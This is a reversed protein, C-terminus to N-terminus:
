RSKSFSSLGARQVLHTFKSGGTWERINSGGHLDPATVTMLLSAHSVGPIAAPTSVAIGSRVGSKFGGVQRSPFGKGFRVYSEALGELPLLQETSLGFRHTIKCLM